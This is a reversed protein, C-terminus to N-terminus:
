RYSRRRGTLSCALVDPHRHCRNPTNCLHLPQLRKQGLGHVDACRQEQGALWTHPLRQKQIRYGINRM